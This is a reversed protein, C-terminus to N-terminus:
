RRDDQDRTLRAAIMCAFVIGLAAFWLGTEGRVPAGSVALMWQLAYGGLAGGLGGAAAGIAIPSTSTTTRAIARTM